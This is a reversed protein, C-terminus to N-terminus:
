KTIKSYKRLLIKYNDNTKGVTYKSNFYDRLSNYKGSNVFVKLLTERMVDLSFYLKEIPLNKLHRMHVVFPENSNSETTHYQKNIKYTM